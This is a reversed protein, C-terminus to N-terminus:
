VLWFSGKDIDWSQQQEDMKFRDERSAPHFAQPNMTNPTPHTCLHDHIHTLPLVAPSSYDYCELVEYWERPKCLSFISATLTFLGSAASLVATVTPYYPPSVGPDEWIFARSIIYSAKSLSTDSLGWTAKVLTERCGGEVLADKQLKNKSSTNVSYVQLIFPLHALALCQIM